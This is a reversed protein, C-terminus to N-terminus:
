AEASEFFHNEQNYSTSMKTNYYVTDVQGRLPALVAEEWRWVCVCWDSTNEKRKAMKLLIKTEGGPISGPGKATLACLGLWQVM